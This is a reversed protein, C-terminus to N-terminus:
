GRNRRGLTFNRRVFNLLRTIDAISGSGDRSRIAGRHQHDVVPRVRAPQELLMERAVAIVHDAGLTPLTPIPVFPTTAVVAPTVGRRM